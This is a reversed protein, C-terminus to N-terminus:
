PLVIQTPRFSSNWRLKWLDELTIRGARGDLFAINVAHFHRDLCYYAMQGGPGPPKPGIGSYYPLPNILSHPATDTSDPAAWFYICDGFLPVRDSHPAPMEIM